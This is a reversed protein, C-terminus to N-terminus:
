KWTIRRTEAALSDEKLGDKESKRKEPLLCHRMHVSKKGDNTCPEAALTGGRLGDTSGM